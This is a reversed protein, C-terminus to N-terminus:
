LNLTGLRIELLIRQRFYSMDRQTFVLPRGESLYDALKITFVGCDYGNEQQPVMEKKVVELQWEHRNVQPGHKDEFEDCVYQLLHQLVGNDDGGLSDYYQIRKGKFNISALCWHTQSINIPVFCFDYEPLVIRKTWKRVNDYKYGSREGTLKKYFFSSFFHCRLRQASQLPLGCGCLVPALESSAHYRHFVSCLNNTM